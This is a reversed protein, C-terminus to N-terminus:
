QHNSRIYRSGHGVIPGSSADFTNRSRDICESSTYRYKPWLCDIFILSLHVANHQYDTKENRSIEKNRDLTKYSDIDM